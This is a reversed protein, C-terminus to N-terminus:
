IDKSSFPTVVFDDFTVDLSMVKSLPLTVTGNLNTDTFKVAFVIENEYSRIIKVPETFYHHPNFQKYQATFWGIVDKEYPALQSRQKNYKDRAKITKKYQKLYLKRIKDM